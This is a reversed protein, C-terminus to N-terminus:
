RIPQYTFGEPLQDTVSNIRTTDVFKIGSSFTVTNMAHNVGRNSIVEEISANIGNMACLQYVAIAYGECLVENGSYAGYYHQIYGEDTDENYYYKVNTKVWNIINQITADASGVNLSAAIAKAKQVEAIYASIKADANLTNPFFVCYGSSTKGAKTRIDYTYGYNANFYDRFIICEEYSGKYVVLSSDRDKNTEYAEFAKYVAEDLDPRQTATYMTRVCESLSSNSFQVTETVYTVDEDAEAVAVAGADTEAEKTNEKTEETEKTEQVETNQALEVRTEPENSPETHAEAEKTLDTEVESSLESHAEMENTENMVVSTEVASSAEHGPKVSTTMSVTVAVAAALAIAGFYYKKRM